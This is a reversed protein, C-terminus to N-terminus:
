SAHGQIAHEEALILLKKYRFLFRLTDLVDTHNIEEKTCNTEGPLPHRFLTLNITRLQQLNWLSQRLPAISAGQKADFNQLAMCVFLVFSALVLCLRCFLFCCLALFVSPPRARVIPSFSHSVLSVVDHRAATM